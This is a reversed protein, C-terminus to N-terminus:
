ITKIGLMKLTNIHYGYYPQFVIFEDGPNLLALCSIFFAGTAGATAVINKDPDVDISNYTRLKESIASRIPMTGMYSTYVNQGDDIAKKANMQVSGPVALDAIGQALNIGHVKQCEFTMSRIESQTTRAAKESLYAKPNQM